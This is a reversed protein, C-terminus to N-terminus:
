AGVSDRLILVTYIGASLRSIDIAQTGTVSASSVIQGISNLLQIDYNGNDEIDVTFSKSAPNQYIRADILSSLENIKVLQSYSTVGEM